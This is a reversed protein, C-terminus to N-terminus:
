NLANLQNLFTSESMESLSFSITQNASIVIPTFAAHLKGDKASFAVATCELGIPAYQYIYNIGSVNWEPYVHVCSNINKFILYVDTQNYDSQNSVNLTLPTQTYASFYSSNDSNCWTGNSATGSYEYLSYVYATTSWTLSDEITPVWGGGFNTDLPQVFPTMATDLVGDSSTVPQQITIKKGSALEVPSNDSMVRIFFEGASKLPRGDTLMSPINSLLMDSKKYIDKFEIAVFGTVPAGSSTVFANAPITVITGNSSTFTGGSSANVNFMQSKVEHKNYFDELTSYTASPQGYTLKEKKCAALMVVCIIGLIRIANKM